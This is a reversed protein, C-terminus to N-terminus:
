CSLIEVIRAGDRGQASPPTKKSMIGAAVVIGGGGPAITKPSELLLTCYSGKQGATKGFRLPAKKHREYSAPSDSLYEIRPV